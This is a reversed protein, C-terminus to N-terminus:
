RFRGKQGRRDGGLRVRRGGQSGPGPIDIKMLLGERAEGEVANGTSDTLVFRALAEGAHEHWRNVDLLKRVTDTFFGAALAADNFTRSAEATVAEGRRNEPVAGTYNKEEM